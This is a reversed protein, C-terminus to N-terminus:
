IDLCILCEILLGCVKKEGHGKAVWRHFYYSSIACWPQHSLPGSRRRQPELRPGPSSRACLGKALSEGSRGPKLQILLGAPEQSEAWCSTEAGAAAVGASLGSAPSWPEPLFGDVGPHQAQSNPWIPITFNNQFSPLLPSHTFSSAQQWCFHVPFLRFHQQRHDRIAPSM